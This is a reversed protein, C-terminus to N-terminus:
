SKSYQSKKRNRACPKHEEESLNSNSSVGYASKTYASNTDEGMMAQLYSDSKAVLHVTGTGLAPADKLVQVSNAGALMILIFQLSTADHIHNYMYKKCIAYIALCLESGYDSKTATEINALLTIRLQPIGIIIGYMAMQAANSQMLEMNISIKKCFDFNHNIAKLLQELV